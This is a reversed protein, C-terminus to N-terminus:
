PIRKVEVRRSQARGAETKNSAIPVTAGFGNVELRGARIGKGVMYLAYSAARRFRPSIVSQNSTSAMSAQFAGDPPRGPPWCRYELRAIAQASVNRAM